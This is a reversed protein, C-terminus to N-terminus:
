RQGNSRKRKKKDLNGVGRSNDGGGSRQQVIDQYRQILEEDSIKQQPKDARARNEVSDKSDQYAREIPANFGHFSRRGILAAQMGYMDMATAPAYMKEPAEIGNDDEHQAAAHGSRQQTNTEDIDMPQHQPTTSTSAAAAAPSGQLAAKRKAENQNM